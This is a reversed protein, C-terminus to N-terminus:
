RKSRIREALRLAEYSAICLLIMEVWWILDPFGRRDRLYEHTPLLLMWYPVGIIAALLPRPAIQPEGRIRGSVAGCAHMACLIVVSFVVLGIAWSGLSGLDGQTPAHWLANVIGGVYTGCVYGNISSTKV